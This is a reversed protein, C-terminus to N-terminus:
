QSEAALEVNWCELSAHALQHSSLLPHACREPGPISLRHLYNRRRLLNSDRRHIEAIQAVDLALLRDFLMNSLFRMTRECQIMVSRPTHVHQPQAFFIM